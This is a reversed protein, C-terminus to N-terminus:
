MSQNPYAQMAGHVNGETDKFYVIIGVGPIDMKQTVVKGGHKEIRSITDDLDAVDITNVVNPGSERRPEIGGDIGPEKREGTSVLWYPVPGKWRDTKWGFVGEFFKALKEPDDASIEFHVVRGM